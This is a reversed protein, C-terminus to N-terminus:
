RRVCHVHRRRLRRGPGHPPKGGAAHPRRRLRVPRSSYTTAPSLGTLNAEHQYYDFSFGTAAAPVLRSAAATVSEAEGAAAYRVEAPGPERTAWVVTAASAGVQQLYPARALTVTPGPDEGAPFITTDNKLAGPAASMFKSPSLLIQDVIAGDERSQVRLVQPGGTAFYIAPGLVDVGWGNDQWGWGAIGCGKCDELNVEAASVTGIRYIPNSATDVSSSFQVFVSDNAWDNNQARLRLWVRYPVGAPADFTVEFFSPPDAAATLIKAAGANPFWVATGGAATADALRTWQGAMTAIRGPFLVIDGAGPTQALSSQVASCLALVAIGSSLRKLTM